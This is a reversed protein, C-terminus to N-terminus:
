RASNTGHPVINSIIYPRSTTHESRIKVPRIFFKCVLLSYNHVRSIMDILIVKSQPVVTANDSSLLKLACNM